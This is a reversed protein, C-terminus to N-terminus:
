MLFPINLLTFVIRSHSWKKALMVNFCQALRKQIVVFAIRLPKMEEGSDNEVEMIRLAPLSQFSMLVCLSTFSSSLSISSLLLFFSCLISRDSRGSDTTSPHLCVPQRSRGFYLATM